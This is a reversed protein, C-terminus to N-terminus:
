KANGSAVAMLIGHDHLHKVLKEVGPKLQIEYEIKHCRSFLDQKFTSENLNLGLNQNVMQALIEFNEVNTM